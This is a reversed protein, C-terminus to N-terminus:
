YLQLGGVELRFSWDLFLYWCTNEKSNQLFNLFVDNKISYGWPETIKVNSFYSKSNVTCQEGVKMVKWLAYWVWYMETNNSLSQWTFCWKMSKEGFLFFHNQFFSLSIKDVKYRFPNCDPSKSVLLKM